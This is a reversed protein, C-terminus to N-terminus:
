SPRLSMITRMLEVSLEEYEEVTRRPETKGIIYPTGIVIPVKSFLPKKRPVFVPVIPVGAREAIKIAGSKATSGADDSVRRGEPFIAVPEGNKLYALTSKITSVDTLSRDVSIMGLKKMFWSLVPVKFLSVKAIFHIHRDIGYAFAVLFPDSRSSHNACVMAAGNPINEAGSIDLRYFLAVAFRLVRFCRRYFKGATM